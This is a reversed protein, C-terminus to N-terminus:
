LAGGGRGGEENERWKARTEARSDARRRRLHSIFEVDSVLVNGRRRQRARARAHASFLPASSARRRSSAFASKRPSKPASDRSAAYSSRPVDDRSSALFALAHTSLPSLLPSSLPTSRAYIRVRKRALSARAHTHTHAASCFTAHNACPHAHPHATTAGSPRARSKPAQTRACPAHDRARLLAHHASAPATARRFSLRDDFLSWRASGHAHARASCATNAVLALKAM